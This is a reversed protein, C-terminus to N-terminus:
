NMIIFTPMIISFSVLSLFARIVCWYIKKDNKAIKIINKISYILLYILLLIIGINLLINVINIKYFINLVMLFLLIVNFIGFVIKFANYKHEYIYVEKFNKIIFELSTIFITIYCIVKSAIEHNNLLTYVLYLVCLPIIITELLMKKNKM